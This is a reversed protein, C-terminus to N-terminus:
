CLSCLRNFELNVFDGACVKALHTKKARFPEHMGGVSSNMSVEIILRFGGSDLSDQSEKGRYAYLEGSYWHEGPVILSVSKLSVARNSPKVQPFFRSYKM